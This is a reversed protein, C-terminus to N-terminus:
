RLIFRKSGVSEKRVEDEGKSLFGKQRKNYWKVGPRFTFGQTGKLATNQFYYTDFIYGADLVLALRHPLRHEAGVMATLDTNILVGPNLTLATKFRFAADNAQAASWLTAASLVMSFFYKM